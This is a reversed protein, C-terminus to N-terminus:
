LVPLPKHAERGHHFVHDENRADFRQGCVDCVKEAGNRPREFPPLPPLNRDTERKM